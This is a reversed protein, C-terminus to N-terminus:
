PTVNVVGTMFNHVDCHYTFRGASTLRITKSGSSFRGTDFSHDDATFTHDTGDRNTVTLTTGAKVTLPTPSFRFNDITVADAAFSAVSSSTPSPVGPSRAASSNGCAVLGVAAAVGAAVLALGRVMRAQQERLRM